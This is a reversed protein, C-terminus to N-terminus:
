KLLCMNNLMQNSTMANNGVKALNVAANLCVHALSTTKDDMKPKRSAQDIETQEHLRDLLYLTFFRRTTLIVAFYYVCAVHTGGLFMERDATSSRVVNVETGSRLDGPLSKSWRQLRQLFNEAATVDQRCNKQELEDLYPCINFIAQLARGRATEDVDQSCSSVDDLRSDPQLIGPLGSSRGLISNM